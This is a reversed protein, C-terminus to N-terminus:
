KFIHRIKGHRCSGCTVADDAGFFFRCPCNERVDRALLGCQTVPKGELNTQLVGQVGKPWYPNLDDGRDSKVNRGCLTTQDVSILGLELKM